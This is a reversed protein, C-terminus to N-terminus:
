AGPHSVLEPRTTLAPSAGLKHSREPEHQFCATNPLMTATLVLLWCHKPVGGQSKLFKGQHRSSPNPKIGLLIKPDTNPRRLKRSIEARCAGTGTPPLVACAPCSRSYRTLKILKAFQLLTKVKCWHM